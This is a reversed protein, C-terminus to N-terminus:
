RSSNDKLFAFSSTSILLEIVGFLFHLSDTIVNQMQLIELTVGQLQLHLYTAVIPRTFSSGFNASKYIRCFTLCHRKHIFNYVTNCNFTMVTSKQSCKPVKQIKSDACNPLLLHSYFVFQLYM